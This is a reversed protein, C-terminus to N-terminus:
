EEVHMPKCKDLEDLSNAAVVCRAYTRYVLRGVADRQRELRETCAREPLITEKPTDLEAALVEALHRCVTQPAPACATMMALGLLAGLRRSGRAAPQLRTWLRHHRLLEAGPRSKDSSSM